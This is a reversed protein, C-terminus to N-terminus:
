AQAEKSIEGLLTKYGKGQQHMEGIVTALGKSETLEFVWVTQGARIRDNAKLQVETIREGNVWTGNTSKLDQVAYGDAKPSVMFHQRSMRDDAIQVDAEESRGFVVPQTALETRVIMSGDLKKRVIYPM